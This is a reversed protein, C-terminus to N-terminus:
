RVAVGVGDVFRCGLLLLPDVCDLHRCLGARLYRRDRCAPLVRLDTGAAVLRLPVDHDPSPFVANANATYHARVLTGDTAILGTLQNRSTALVLCTRAGPLLAFRRPTAPTTWRWACEAKQRVIRAFILVGVM